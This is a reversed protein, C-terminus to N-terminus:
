EKEQTKKILIRWFGKEDEEVKLLKFGLSKVAMPIEKKSASHTGLVEVIQGEEAKRLAKRTEVLPIPCTENICDVKIDSHM